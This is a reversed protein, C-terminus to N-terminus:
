VMGCTEQFDKYLLLMNICSAMIKAAEIMELGTNKTSFSLRISSRAEEDTLGVAKLVHSPAQEKTNCASGASVCVGYNDLLLILSEADVGDVSFNIIKQSYEFGPNCIIKDFFGADISLDIFKEWFTHMLVDIERANNEVGDCYLIRCAEGFGVIGPVNETGGRMGFEQGIGGSILPNFRRKDRIYLAGVGKPGHIKHSSFTAFDCGIERVDIPVCGLAQVCDTHFLAGNKHAVECIRKVDNITGLENNMCMVSVLATNPTCNLEVEEPTIIGDRDAKAYRVNYDAASKLVSEHEINSVVTNYKYPFYTDAMHFVTRNGETGGSTFIIESPDANILKAVCERAEEVAARADRGLKYLTGANGYGDQLFPIMKEVVSLHPKTTAASDLYIM